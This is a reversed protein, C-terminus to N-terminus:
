CIHTGEKGVGEHEQCECEGDGGVGNAELCPTTDAAAGVDTLGALDAGAGHLEAAALFATRSDAAQALSAAVVAASDTGVGAFWAGRLEASLLGLPLLFGLSLLADGATRGSAAPCLNAAVLAASNAGRRAAEAGLLEAADRATRSSTGATIYAAVLAASDAGRGAANAGLLEATIGLESKSGFGRRNDRLSLPVHSFTPLLL